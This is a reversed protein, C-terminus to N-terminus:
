IRYTEAKEYAAYYKEEGRRAPSGALIVSRRSIRRSLRGHNTPLIRSASPNDLFGPLPSSSPYEWPRAM